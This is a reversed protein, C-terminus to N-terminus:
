HPSHEMVLALLQQITFPKPLYANAGALWALFQPYAGDLRAIVIIAMQSVQKHSRLFRILKYGSMSPLRLDVLAVDPLPRQGGTVDRLVQLPEAYEIVEGAERSLAIAVLKRITPSDDIVWIIPRKYVVNM